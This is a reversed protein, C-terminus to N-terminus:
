VLCVVFTGPRDPQYKRETQLSGRKCEMDTPVINWQFREPQSQTMSIKCRPRNDLFMMLRLKTYVKDSYCSYSSPLYLPSQIKYQNGWRINKCSRGYFATDLRNSSSLFRKWYNPSSQQIHRPDISVTHCSSRGLNDASWSNYPNGRHAYRSMGQCHFSHRALM